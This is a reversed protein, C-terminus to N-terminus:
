SGHSAEVRQPGVPSSMVLYSSLPSRMCASRLSVWRNDLAEVTEADRRAYFYICAYIFYVDPLLLPLVAAITARTLLAFLQKGFAVGSSTSAGQIPIHRDLRV